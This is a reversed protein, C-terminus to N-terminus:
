RTDRGGPSVVCPVITFRSRPTGDREQVELAFDIAKAAESVSAFEDVFVDDQTVYCAPEPQPAVLTQFREHGGSVWADPDDRRSAADPM